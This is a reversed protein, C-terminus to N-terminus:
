GKAMVAFNGNKELLAGPAGVEAVRGEDMVVILDSGMITNLRHAVTVTTWAEFHERIVGQIATDTDLDLNSTAEDLLLVSTNQKLMARALALLQQQGKSLSSSNMDTDLGGREELETWLGVRELAAVITADPHLGEPDLNLRLSGVIILPHQPIAVLRNRITERPVTSLDVGDILITGSDIELLRLVTALLSSKGSHSATVDRFEISGRHPWAPPPEHTEHEREEPGVNEHFSKLRSLSGLSMELMTWGTVLSSVNGDFGLINNLSVGLLGASTASRLGISLGVVVIALGGTILGLVLALWSQICQFLYHPRQSVDLLKHNTTLGSLTELFHSYLPSKAEIDLLRLQRSTRLYVHQVLGIALLLFPVSIAMCSSGTAVLAVSAITSFFNSVTILVGVPLDSRILTMDQSFRNLVTGTDTTSFFSQPASIVTNLLVQHSQRATSPAILILIAWIYGGMGLSALVSLALYVSAYRSIQFAVLTLGGHGSFTTSFVNIIIFAVFVAAKPWGIFRYYYRYISIDGTARSLDDLVNTKAIESANEKMQNPVGSPPEKLKDDDREENEIADVLGHRVAHQYTGEYKIRGDSLMVIKDAYHLFKIAHTVLLVTSNLVRLLGTKGLLREWVIMQTNTDLASLVDDLVVVEARAYLARALAIRHQQGGSLINGRSGIRTSDGEPLLGLDYDLACATLTKHYWEEDFNHTDYAGCIAHRITTSPLWSTQTCVAIRRTSVSVSGKVFDVEGLIARLLTTKGSAVPGTVITLSGCPVVFNINELVLDAAPTPRMSLDHVIIANSPTEISIAESANIEVSLSSSQAPPISRRKDERSPSVLFKQIRDLCGVSALTAPIASLLGAAPSTLLSILSLSTFAQTTGISGTGQVTARVAYVTFTLSAAFTSPINSIVNQWVISVRFAAMRHTEEVRQEQILAKFLGSLGLMKVGRMDALMVSTMAIRKQVADVWVKQRGAIFNSVYGSGFSSVTVVIIPIVCPWGLQLALLVMGIVTEALRAWCENFDEICSIVRAVDTGMLTVAASEDYLDDRILLAHNYILTISAGRFMTLFRSNKLQYQLNTIALGLYVLATAGVLGYGQDHTMQDDPQILLDLLRSILFPQAFTFGIRCIRPLTTLLLPKWLTKCIVWVFEFRREPRRRHNWVAQVRADLSASSLDTDLAYLDGLTLVSSFGQLFLDNMWWLVSRSIVGSTSEPPLDKYQKEAYSTKSRAELFLLAGKTFTSVSLLISITTKDHQLWLTRLQAVDFLFTFLLYVNLISSPRVSRADEIWTLAVVQLAVVLNLTASTVTISTRETEHLSWVVLLVLQLSFFTIAVALNQIRAVSNSTTVQKKALYTLRSLFALIFVSAPIVGLVAQEFLLTFDFGGRCDHGIGPGFADESCQPEAM